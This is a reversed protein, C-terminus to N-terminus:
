AYPRLPAPIRMDNPAKFDKAAGRAAALGRPYGSRDGYDAVATKRNGKESNLAKACAVDIATVALLGALALISNDRKRNDPRMATSVTAMDALDGAVRAWVWPEPNASSLIAVGNAIERAGYARVLPETGRLGLTRCIARPAIIEAAGLALSLYGLKAAIRDAGSQSRGSLATQQVVRPMFRDM